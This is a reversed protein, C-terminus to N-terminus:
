MGFQSERLYNEDAHGGHGDGSGLVDELGRGRGGLAGGVGELAFVAGRNLDDRDQLVFANLLVVPPVADVDLGAVPDLQGFRARRVTGVARDDLRPLVLLHLSLILPLLSSTLPSSLPSSILLSIFLSLLDKNRSNCSM